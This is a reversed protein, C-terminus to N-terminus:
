SQVCVPHKNVSHENIWWPLPGVQYILQPQWSHVQSLSSFNSSFFFPFLHWPDYTELIGTNCLRPNEEYLLYPLRLNQKAKLLFSPVSLACKSLLARSHWMNGWCVTDVWFALNRKFTILSPLGSCLHVPPCPSDFVSKSYFCQIHCLEQSKIIIRLGCDIVSCSTLEKYLCALAESSDEGGKFCSMNKTKMQTCFVHEKGEGERKRETERERWRERYCVCVCMSHELGNERKQSWLDCQVTVLCRSHFVCRQIKTDM